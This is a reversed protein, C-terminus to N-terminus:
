KGTVPLKIRGAWGHRDQSRRHRGPKSSDSGVRCLARRLSFWSIAGASLQVVVIVLGVGILGFPHALLLVASLTVVCVYAQMIASRHTTRQVRCYAYYVTSIAKPLCAILLMDMVTTAGVYKDGFARLLWPCIIVLVAVAPLIIAFIRRITTWVLRSIEEPAHAGEVTLAAAFNSAIQDVTSSFLFATFFLANISPGLSATILAPLLYTWAQTFLGGTADGIAFRLMKSRLEHGVLYIRRSKPAPPLFRVFLVGTIIPITLTLPIMWASFIAFATGIPAFALLTGIKAIGFTGNEVPVWVARRLGVLVSDEITFIAIAGVALVFAISQALDLRFPSTPSALVRIAILSIAALSAGASATFAYTTVVLRRSTEGAGPLFRMLMGSLNLQGVGSFLTAGAVLASAVGVAYTSFLRAAIIWYGFGLIGTLGTNALLALGGRALPDSWQSIAGSRIGALWRRVTPPTFHRHGDAQCAV